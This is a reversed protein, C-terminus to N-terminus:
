YTLLFGAYYTVPNPTSATDLAYALGGRGVSLLLRLHDTVDYQGGLNFGTAGGQGIMDSTQHFVEAGLALKTTVQRQLMWGVFWYNRNAPGPNIWYGAGADSTWAGFSKQLWVPLFAQVYGAGLGRKADGTPLEIQPYVSIQPLWDGQGPNIL